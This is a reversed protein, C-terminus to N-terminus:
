YCKLEIEWIRVFNCCKKNAQIVNIHTRTDTNFKFILFGLLSLWRDSHIYSQAFNKSGNALLPALEYSYFTIEIYRREIVIIMRWPSKTLHEKCHLDLILSACTPLIKGGRINILLFICLGAMDHWALEQCQFNTQYVKSNLFSAVKVM